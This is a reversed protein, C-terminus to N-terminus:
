ESRIEQGGEGGRKTQSIKIFFFRHTDARREAADAPDQKNNLPKM